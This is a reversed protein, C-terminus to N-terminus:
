RALRGRRDSRFTRYLYQGHHGRLHGQRDSYQLRYDTTDYRDVEGTTAYFQRRTNLNVGAM